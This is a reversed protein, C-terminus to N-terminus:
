KQEEKVLVPNMWCGRGEKVYGFRTLWSRITYVSLPQALQQNIAEVLVQIKVSTGRDEFVREIMYKLSDISVDSDNVGRANLRTRKWRPAYGGHKDYRAKWRDIVSKPVVNLTSYVEDMGYGDKFFQCAIREEDVFKLARAM